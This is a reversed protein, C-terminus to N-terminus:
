EKVELGMSMASGKVMNCASNVDVCNMDSMKEKAIKTIDANSISGSSVLGAKSSGKALGIAKKIYYSVPPLKTIFTFSKDKYLTIVVPIPMDKEMDKTKANFGKCFEMINIGHQGLVSGLAPTANNAPVQLKIYNSIEKKKM